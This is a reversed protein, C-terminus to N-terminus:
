HRRQRHKAAPQRHQAAPAWHIRFFLSGIFRALGLSSSVRNPAIANKMM